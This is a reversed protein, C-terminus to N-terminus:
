KGPFHKITDLIEAGFERVAYSSEFRQLIRLPSVKLGQQIKRTWSFKFVFKRVKFSAMHQRLFKENMQKSHQATHNARVMYPLIPIKQTRASFSLFKKILSFLVRANIMSRKDYRVSRLRVYPAQAQVRTIIGAKLFIFDISEAIYIYTHISSNERSSYYWLFFSDILVFVTLFFLKKKRM